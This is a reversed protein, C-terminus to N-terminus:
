QRRSEVVGNYTAPLPGTPRSAAASSHPAQSGPRRGQDALRGITGTDVGLGEVLRGHVIRLRELAARADAAMAACDFVLETRSDGEGPHEWNWWELVYLKDGSRLIRILWGQEVDDFVEVHDERKQPAAAAISELMHRAYAESDFWPLDTLADAGDHITATVRFYPFPQRLVGPVNRKRSIAVIRRYHAILEDERDIAAATTVGGFGSMSPPPPPLTERLTDWQERTFGSSPGYYVDDAWSFVADCTVGTVASARAM